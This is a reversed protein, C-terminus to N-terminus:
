QWLHSSCLGLFLWTVMSVFFVLIYLALVVLEEHNTVTEVTYIIHFIPLRATCCYSHASYVGVCVCMFVCLLRYPQLDEPM